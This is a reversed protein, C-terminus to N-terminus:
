TPKFVMLYVVIVFLLTLAIGAMQVKKEASRDGAALQKEAPILVASVIGGIVLWLIASIMVWLDSFKFAEDSIGVMAFGLIGVLLLAPLYVTRTNTVASGSFRQEAAADGKLRAATLPHVVAPAFAVVISVLHLILLVNYADDRVRALLFM